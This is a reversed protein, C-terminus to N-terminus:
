LMLAIWHAFRLKLISPPPLLDDLTQLDDVWVTLCALLAFDVLGVVAARGSLLVTAEGDLFMSRYDQNASGVMLYYVARERETASRGALFREVLEQSALSLQESATRPDGGSLLQGAYIWIATAVEPRTVLSDWGDRSAFFNSKLHLQPMITDSAPAPRTLGPLGAAAAAERMHVLMTDVSPHLDLLRRLFPTRRANRYAVEFRGMVDEVGVGPNYLGTKLLGGAAELEPGLARQLVILRAFLEHTLAMQPFGRSSSAEFSPAIILARVGRLASGALLAAYLKCGWLSDPVKVVSGPPMLSYLIARAVDIPKDAYGTLNHLEMARGAGHQRAIEDEVAQDYEAAKARPRLPFPIQAPRMGQSLLLQRAQEKLSLLAPGQVLIARDEWKPGAYLEGVGIGTYLAMGRYPDEETVDYFVIKRHDRIVNDPIGLLPLIGRARFSPDAPNTVNVHVSVLNELWAEGYQRREAQLLRSAAVAARLSRQASDVAAELSDNGAPLVLGKYLPHELLTLWLRGSTVEYYHEDIFIMFIPLRHRPDGDYARVARTLAELYAQVVYSFSMRDPEGKETFGRFDHIWLVHYDRADRISQQVESQLQVNIVYSVRNGDTFERGVARQVLDDLEAQTDHEEPLLGLQLPLWLERSGGWRERALEEVAAAAGLLEQFVYLVADRREQPVLRAALIARAFNGSAYAGLSAVARGSKRQGLLRDCPLLVHDLLARRALAELSDGVPAAEFPALPRGTAAIGFARALEEHFARVVPEVQLDPGAAVGPLSAPARLREILPALAQEPDDGPENLSPVVLEEIRLAAARVNALAEALSAPADAPPETAPAPRSPLSVAADRPRTHGAWPQHLPVLVSVRVADAATLWEARLLSGKGVIGGRRLPLAWAVLPSLRRYATSYDVGGALGLNPVELLARAGATPESVRAGAYAEAAVALLGTVPNGLPEMLGVTGLLSLGTSHARRDAALAGGAYWHRRPPQGLSATLGGQWPPLTDQAVGPHPLALALSLALPLLPRGM